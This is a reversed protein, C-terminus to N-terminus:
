IFRSVEDFEKIKPQMSDFFMQTKYNLKDIEKQTALVKMERSLKDHLFESEKLNNDLQDRVSVKLDHIQHYFKDENNNLREKFVDMVKM